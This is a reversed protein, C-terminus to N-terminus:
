EEGHFIIYMVARECLRSVSFGKALDQEIDHIAESLICM